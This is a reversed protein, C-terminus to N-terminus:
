GEDFGALFPDKESPNNQPPNATDAGKTDTSVIFDAWETKASETLKDADKIKGEDDLEIKSLDSVKMVTDIRKESIGAAKYLNRLANDKARKTEETAINEKLKTLENNVKEFDSKLVTEEDGNKAITENAKDLKKQVDALKEADAKFQDRETKLADTVEVHASMIEDVKDAEIGM